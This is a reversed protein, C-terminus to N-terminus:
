YLYWTTEILAKKRRKADSQHYTCHVAMLLEMYEKSVIQFEMYEKFVIQLEMYEKSVIQLEM